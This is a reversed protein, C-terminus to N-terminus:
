HHISVNVKIGLGGVAIVVSDSYISIVKGSIQDIM